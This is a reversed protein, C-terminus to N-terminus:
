SGPDAERGVAGPSFVEFTLTRSTSRGEADTATFTLLFRGPPLRGPEYSWARPGRGDEVTGPDALPQFTESGPEAHEIGWQLEVPTDELDAPPHAEVYLAFPEETSLEDSMRPIVLQDWLRFPETASASRAPGQSQHIARALIPGTLRPGEEPSPAIELDRRIVASGGGRRDLIAGSLNWSGAPVPRIAQFRLWPDGKAPAPEAVFAEEPIDVVERSADEGAPILQASAVFRTGLSGATGDWAPKLRDRRVALTIATLREGRRSVIPAIRAAGPLTGVFDEAEVV